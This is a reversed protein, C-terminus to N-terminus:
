RVDDHVNASAAPNWTVAAATPTRSSLDFATTSPAAPSVNAEGYINITVDQDSQGPRVEDVDFMVYANTISMGAEIDVSPFVVAVVQESGDHMMEYDSSDLYMNGNGVDEEGGDPRGSVSFQASNSAPPTAAFYSIELAPTMIGNNERASEVWRVGSGATHGFLITMPNGAAWGDM